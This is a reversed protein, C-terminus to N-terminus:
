TISPSPEKGFKWGAIPILYSTVFNKMQKGNVQERGRDRVTTFTWQGQVVENLLLTTHFAFGLEKWGAPRVGYKGFEARVEPKDGGSGDRSPFEVSKVAATTLVHGPFRMVETMFGMNMRKIISWNVGYEGAFPHGTKGDAKFEVFWDQVEKGYAKESFGAQAMDWVPDVRDVVLWDGVSGSLRINSVAGMYEDWDEVHRIDVDGGQDKGVFNREAEFTTDIVFMKGEMQESIKVAATSKGVGWGGMLLIRERPGSTRLGM